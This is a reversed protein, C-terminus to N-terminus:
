ARSRTPNCPTFGCNVKNGAPTLITLSVSISVIMSSACAAARVAQVRHRHVDAGALQERVITSRGRTVKNRNYLRSGHPISSHLFLV